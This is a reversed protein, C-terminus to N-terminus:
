NAIRRIGDKLVRVNFNIILGLKHGTIRLYSIMQASHTSCLSEVAKVDLIIKGFVLFDLRGKGVEHGKYQLHVAQQREFPISRLDFEVALSEEYASELHGPGLHRHVEIAAGIILNTLRNREPDPEMVEDVFADDRMQRM